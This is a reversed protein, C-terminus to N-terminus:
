NTSDTAAEKPAEADESTEESPKVVPEEKKTKQLMEPIKSEPAFRVSDEEEVTVTYSPIDM